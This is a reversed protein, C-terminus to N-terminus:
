RMKIIFLRKFYSFNKKLLGSFPLYIVLYSLRKAKFEVRCNLHLNLQTGLLFLGV